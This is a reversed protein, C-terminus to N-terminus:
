MVVRQRPIVFEVRAGDYEPKWAASSLRCNAPKGLLNDTEELANAFALGTLVRDGGVFVSGSDLMNDNYRYTIPAGKTVMRAACVEVRGRSQRATLFVYMAGGSDWRFGATTFSRDISTGATPEGKGACGSLLSTTILILAASLRFAM